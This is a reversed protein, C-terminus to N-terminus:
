EMLVEEDRTMKYLLCLTFTYEFEIIPQTSLWKAQTIVTRSHNPIESHPKPCLTILLITSIVNPRINVSM